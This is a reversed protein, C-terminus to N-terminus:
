LRSKLDEKKRRLMPRLRPYNQNMFKFWQKFSQKHSRSLRQRVIPPYNRHRELCINVFIKEQLLTEHSDTKLKSFFRQKRKKESILADALSEIIVPKPRKMNHNSSGSLLRICSKYMSTGSILCTVRKQPCKNLADLKVINPSTYELNKKLVTINKM